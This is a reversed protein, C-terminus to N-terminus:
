SKVTKTVVEYNSLREFVNKSNKTKSNKTKALANAIAKDDYVDVIEGWEPGIRM